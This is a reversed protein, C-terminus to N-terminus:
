RNPQWTAACAGCTLTFDRSDPEGEAEIHDADRNGCKPCHGAREYNDQAETAVNWASGIPAGAREAALMALTHARRPLTGKAREATYAARAAEYPDTVKQSSM